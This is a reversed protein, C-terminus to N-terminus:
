RRADDAGRGTLTRIVFFLGILLLVAPTVWNFPELAEAADRALFGAVVGLIGAPVLPWWMRKGRIPILALGVLIAAMIGLVVVAIGEGRGVIPVAAVIVAVTALAGAPILAWWHDRQRLYVALFGLGSGALLMSAGWEDPATTSEVFAILAGLGILAGAPIAAWGSGSDRAFDVAFGIGALAFFAAVVLPSISFVDAADALWLAGGVVLLGGWWLGSSSLRSTDAGGGSRVAAQDIDM